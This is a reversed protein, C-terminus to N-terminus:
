THILRKLYIQTQFYAKVTDTIPSHEEEHRINDPIPLGSQPYTSIASKFTNNKM